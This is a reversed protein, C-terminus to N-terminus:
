LDFPVVIPYDFGITPPEFLVVMPGMKLLVDRLVKYNVVLAATCGM